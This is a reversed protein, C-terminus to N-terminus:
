RRTAQKDLLGFTTKVESQRVPLVERKPKGHQRLKVKFPLFSADFVQTRTLAYM